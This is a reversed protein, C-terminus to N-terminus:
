HLKALEEIVKDRFGNQKLTDKLYNITKVPTPDVGRLAALYVSTFDGVLATSLMKALTSKGQAEVEFLPVGEQEMLEKTIEIRSHIELPEDKDRLLIASFFKALEAAKEWGVTENHNLESFVEWKAPVKANENFQQKYRQAVGRYVGFGYTVPATKGINLALTKCFNGDTPKEPANDASVKTLLKLAENLEAKAGGVLGMKELCLLLPTFLYPLAARPPMGGPVRVYPVTLREASQM